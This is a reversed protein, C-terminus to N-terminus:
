AVVVAVDDGETDAVLVGPAEVGEGTAHQTAAVDRPYLLRLEVSRNVACRERHRGLHMGIAELTAALHADGRRVADGFSHDVAVELDLHRQETSLGLAEDQGPDPTAHAALRFEQVLPQFLVPGTSPLTM